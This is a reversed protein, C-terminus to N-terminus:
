DNIEQASDKKLIRCMTTNCDSCKGRLYHRNKKNITKAHDKMLKKARCKVCYAIEESM